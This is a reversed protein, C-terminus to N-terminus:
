ALIDLFSLGLSHHLTSSLVIGALGRFATWTRSTKEGRLTSNTGPYETPTSQGSVLRTEDEQTRAALAQPLDLIAGKTMSAVLPIHIEDRKM